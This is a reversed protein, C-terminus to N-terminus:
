SLRGRLAPVIRWASGTVSVLGAVTTLVPFHGPRRANRVSPARVNPAFAPVGMPVVISLLM